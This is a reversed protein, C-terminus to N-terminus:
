DSTLVRLKRRLSKVERSVHEPSVRLRNALSKQPETSHMMVHALLRVRRGIAQSGVRGDSLWLIVRFITERRVRALDEAMAEQEGQEDPYKFGVAGVPQGDDDFGTSTPTHSL